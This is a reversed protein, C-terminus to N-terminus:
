RDRALSICDRLKNKARFLLVGINSISQKLIESIESNSIGEVEKMNFVIQQTEPLSEICEQIITAVEAKLSFSEPGEPRQIWHGTNDFKNSWIDDYVEAIPEFSDWEHKQQYRNYERCKNILIGTLYTRLKSRGEYKQVSEMFSVWTNQIVDFEHVGQIGWKRVMFLLYGSHEKVLSEIVEPDKGQLKERLEQTIYTNKMKM